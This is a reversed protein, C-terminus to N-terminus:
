GGGIGGGTPIVMGMPTGGGPVVSTNARGFMAGPPSGNMGGLMAAAMGMNMGSVDSASLGPPNNRIDVRPPPYGASMGPFSNTVVGSATSGGSNGNNSMSSANTSSSPLPLRGAVLPGIANSGYVQRNTTSHIHTNDGVGVGVGVGVGGGGGGGSGGGGDGERGAVMRRNVDGVSGGDVDVGGSGQGDKVRGVANGGNGGYPGHPLHQKGSSFSLGTAM